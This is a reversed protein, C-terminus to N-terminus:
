KKITLPYLHAALGVVILGIGWRIPHSGFYPYTLLAGIGVGITIHVFSNYTPHKTFYAKIKKM